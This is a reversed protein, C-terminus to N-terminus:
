TYRDLMDASLAQLCEEAIVASTDDVYIVYRDCCLAGTFFSCATSKCNGSKMVASYMVYLEPIVLECVSFLM